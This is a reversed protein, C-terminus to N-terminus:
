KNPTYKGIYIPVHPFYRINCYGFRTITVEFFPKLSFISFAPQFTYASKGVSNSSREIEAYFIARAPYNAYLINLQCDAFNCLQNHSTDGRTRNKLADGQLLFSFINQSDSHIGSFM